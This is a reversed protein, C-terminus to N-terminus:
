NHFIFFLGLYKNSNLFLVLIIPAIAKLMIKVTKDTNNILVLLMHSHSIGTARRIISKANTESSLNRSSVTKRTGTEMCSLNKIGSTEASMESGVSIISAPISTRIIKLTNILLSILRSISFFGIEIIDKKMKTHHTIVDNVLM